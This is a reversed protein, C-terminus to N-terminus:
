SSPAANGALCVDGGEGERECMCVLVSQLAGHWWDPQWKSQKLQLPLNRICCHHYCLFVFDGWTMARWKGSGMCLLPCENRGTRSLSPSGSNNSPQARRRSWSVPPPTPPSTAQNNQVQSPFMKFGQWIAPHSSFTVLYDWGVRKQPALTDWIWARLCLGARINHVMPVWSSFPCKTPGPQAGPNM